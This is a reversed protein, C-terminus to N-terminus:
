NSFCSARGTTDQEGCDNVPTDKKMEDDNIKKNDKSMITYTNGQEVLSMAM